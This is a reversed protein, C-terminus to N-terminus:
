HEAQSVEVAKQAVQVVAAVTHVEQMLPLSRWPLLQTSVQLVTNTGLVEEEVHSAQVPLQRSQWIVTSLQTTQAALKKM